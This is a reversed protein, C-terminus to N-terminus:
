QEEKKEFIENDLDLIKKWIFFREGNHHSLNETNWMCKYLTVMEGRITSWYFCSSYSFLIFANLLWIKQINRSCLYPLFEFHWIIWFFFINNKNLSYSYPSSKQSFIM